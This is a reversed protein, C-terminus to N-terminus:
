GLLPLLENQLYWSNLLISSTVPQPGRDSEIIVWGAYGLEQMARVLGKFDV